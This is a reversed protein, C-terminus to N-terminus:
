CPDYDNPKYSIDKLEEHYLYPVDTNVFLELM